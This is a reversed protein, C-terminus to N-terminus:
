AQFWALRYTGLIVALAPLLFAFHLSTESWGLTGAALALYYSALPPNQTVNWMPSVTGYWNVNFGYPNWPHAHIQRATWIFLPDDMNFPKALFPILAIFVALALAWNPHAAVWQRTKNWLNGRSLLTQADM